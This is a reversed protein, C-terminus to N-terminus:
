ASQAPFLERAGDCEDDSLVRMTAKSPCSSVGLPTHGTRTLDVVNGSVRVSDNKDPHGVLAEHHTPNLKHGPYKRRSRIVECEIILGDSVLQNFIPEFDKANLGAESRLSHVTEGEPHNRYAALIRERRENNKQARAEISDESRAAERKPRDQKLDSPDLDEALIFIPFQWRLCFGKMPKFSRVAAEVSVADPTAHQRMVLHTDAARSQSGAGSGTDTVSKGAQNGKSSHHIAVFACDIRGALSDLTNYLGAVDSNSNEDSGIPQFRYWADLIILDFDGPKLTGLQISLKNLDVLRGRLNLVCLRDAYQDLEIGMAEAVQPLRHASTEPHLENDIILVRGPRAWCTGLWKAGITVALGLGISLWSKGTKPAAVINMTEGRRLLGELVPPRLDPYDRILDGATRFDLDISGGEPKGETENRSALVGSLDVGSLDGEPRPREPIAYSESKMADDIKHELEQESWPPVCTLNWEGLLELCDVRSLGFGTLKKAAIFTNDHGSNQSRAGPIKALYARARRIKSDRDSSNAAAVPEVRQPKPREPKWSRFVNMVSTLEAPRDRVDDPTGQEKQGTVTFFRGTKFVEAGGGEPRKFKKGFSEPLEGRIFLKLGTGSPSVETYTKLHSVVDHAWGSLKGTEPERCDDLDVGVLGDGNFVFGIGLGNQSAAQTATQFDAWTSEDTSSANQGPFRAQKPIKSWSGGIKQWAWCVWRPVSALSDPVGAIDFNHEPATDASLVEQRNSGSM